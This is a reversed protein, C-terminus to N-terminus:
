LVNTLTNVKPRAIAGLSGIAAIAECRLPEPETSSQALQLLEPAAPLASRGMSTLAKISYLRLFTSEEINTSIAVIEPIATESRPGLDMLCLLARIRDTEAAVPQLMGILQAISFSGHDTDAVTNSTFSCCMSLFWMLLVMQLTDAPVRA